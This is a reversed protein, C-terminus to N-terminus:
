QQTTEGKISNTAIYSSINGAVGITILCFVLTIFGIANLSNQWFQTPFLRILTSNEPFLWSDGTFFLEHFQSFFSWFDVFSFFGVITLIGITLWSAHVWSRLFLKLRNTRYFFLGTTLLLAISFVWLNTLSKIVKKVDVLHSVERETFVPKRRELILLKLDEENIESILFNVSVNAWILRESTSFGFKDIPINPLQYAVNIYTPSLLTQVATAIFIFSIIPPLLYMTTFKITKEM